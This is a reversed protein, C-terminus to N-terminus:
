IKLKKSKSLDGYGLVNKRYNRPVIYSRDVNRKTPKGYLPKSRPVGRTFYNKTITPCKTKASCSTCLMYVFLMSIIVLAVEPLELYAGVKNISKKM